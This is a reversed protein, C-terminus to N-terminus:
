DSPAEGAAQQREIRRQQARLRADQRAAKGRGAVRATQSRDPVAPHPKPSHATARWVDALLYHELRWAAAPGGLLTPTHADPPLYRVLM